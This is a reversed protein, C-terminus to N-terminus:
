ALVPLDAFCVPVPLDSTQGVVPELPPMAGRIWPPHFNKM